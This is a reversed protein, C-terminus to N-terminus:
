PGLWERRFRRQADSLPEGASEATAVEIAPDAILALTSEVRTGRREFELRIEDGARRRRLVTALDSPQGITTGDVSVLRDDRELGAEYAPTRFPVTGAVIVRGGALRLALDGIWAAGPRQPRLVFGAQRLLREYDPLGHGQIYRDFFDAAFREDGSVAALVRRADDMTYPRGVHGPDGGGPRGFAEWMARMYSDLSVRGETRERLTLDLALAIAEGWTYYSLYTNELPTRDPPVGGDVVTALLSMEEASRLLRGPSGRVAEIAYGISAAFPEVGMLGARRVLLPGYYNTFGEALWLEGSPNAREFDFPELSQPRIREVNWAHVFEHAFLDLRASGHALTGSSTLVSSNRHEMADGHAWPLDDVIFTYTGTDFPPYEGFVRGAERVIAEVNRALGDMDVGADQHVAIRITQAPGPRAGPPAPATFSRLDFASVETPSDMLYQLNPATFVLPDATPFLQTAVRWGSAHPPQIRVLAGRRDWGRAWMLAAPMNLHAHTSDIALYTGDVRDGFVKYSVRVESPPDAVDWGSPGPRTFPVARGQDDAVQVDFVNKAFEHLAYRGPSSRSFRLELPGPPLDRLILEVQM